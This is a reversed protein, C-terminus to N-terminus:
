PLRPGTGFGLSQWMSKVAAEFKAEPSKDEVEGRFNRFASVAKKWESNITQLPRDMASLHKLVQELHKAAAPADKKLDPLSDKAENEFDGMDQLPNISGQRMKAVQTMPGPQPKARQTSAQRLVSSKLSSDM